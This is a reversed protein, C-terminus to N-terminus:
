AVPEDLIETEEPVDVEVWEEPHETDVCPTLVDGNQLVKGEDAIVRSLTTYDETEPKNPSITTGKDTKYRYLTRIEM